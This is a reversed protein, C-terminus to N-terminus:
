VKVLSVDSPTPHFAFKRIGGTIHERAHGSIPYRKCEESVTMMAIARM